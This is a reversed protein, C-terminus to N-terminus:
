KVVMFELISIKGDANLICNYVGSPKDTMNIHCHYDKASQIKSDVLKTVERGYSDTIILNIQTENFLQYYITGYTSIPNPSISNLHNGDSDNTNVTDSCGILTGAFGFILMILIKLLKTKM